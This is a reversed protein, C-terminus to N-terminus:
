TLLIQGQSGVLFGGVLADYFTDNYGFLLGVTSTTCFAGSNHRGTGDALLFASYTTDLTLGIWFGSVYMEFPLYSTTFFTFALFNNCAPSYFNSCSADLGTFTWDTGNCGPTAGLGASFVIQAYMAYNCAGALFDGIVLADTIGYASLYYSFYGLYGIMFHYYFQLTMDLSDGFLGFFAVSEAPTLPVGGYASRLSYANFEPPVVIDESIGIYMISSVPSSFYLYGYLKTFTSNGFQSAGAYYFNAPTDVSSIGVTAMLLSNYYTMNGGFSASIILPGVSYMFIGFGFQYVVTSSLMIGLLDEAGAELYVGAWASNLTTFKDYALAANSAESAVHLTSWSYYEVYSHDYYPVVYDFKKTMSTFDSPGVIAINPRSGTEQVDYANSWNYGYLEVFSSGWGGFLDGFEVDSQVTVIDTIASYYTAMIASPIMIGIVIMCVACCSCCGGGAQFGNM